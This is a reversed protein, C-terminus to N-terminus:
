GQGESVAARSVAEVLRQRLDIGGDRNFGVLPQTINIRLGTQVLPDPNQVVALQVKSLVIRCCFYLAGFNLM